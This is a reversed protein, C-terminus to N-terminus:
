NRRDFSLDQAGLRHFQVGNSEYSGGGRQLLLVFRCPSLITKVQPPVGACVSEVRRAIQEGM